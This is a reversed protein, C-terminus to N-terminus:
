SRLDVKAVVSMGPKVLELHPQKSLAIRVPIRQVVKNFNGTANDPPMLSFTAGSAPAFSQITGKFQLSPYADLTLQVTQGLRMKEIQTEKFNAEVYISNDPIIAMLRTQPSVRAGVRVALSGVRGSIPAVIQSANLDVSSLRVQAKANDLDANMQARAAKVSGLQARAADITAQAKAVQAQATLYQAQVSEFRQRTIVGDKLLQQHRAYDASLRNLDAVAASKASEAEAISSQAAVENEAQVGLGAQKLNLMAKAQDARAQFDRNDISLLMQGQKVYQNDQIDIKLVEGAVRPMIWTLDAKVYANDTSQYYRYVLFYYLISLILLIFLGGFVYWAVKKRGQYDPEPTNETSNNPVVVDM